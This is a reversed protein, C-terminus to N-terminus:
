ITNTCPVHLTGQKIRFIIPIPLEGFIHSNQVFVQYAETLEERHKTHTKQSEKAEQIAKAKEMFSKMMQRLKQSLREQILKFNQEYPNFSTAAEEAVVEEATGSTESTYESEKDSDDEVSEDLKFRQMLYEETLSKFEDAKLDEQQPRGPSPKKVEEFQESYLSNVGSAADEENDPVPVPLDKKTQPLLIHGYRSVLNTNSTSAEKAKELQERLWDFRDKFGAKVLKKLTKNIRREKHLAQNKIYDQLGKETIQFIRKQLSQQVDRADKKKKLNIKLRGIQTIVNSKDQPLLSLQPM